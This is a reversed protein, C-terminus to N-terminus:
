FWVETQAGFSIGSTTDTQTVGGANSNVGEENWKAYTAFFRIAPRSFFKSGASFQQAVTFKTLTASDSGAAEPTVKDYGLEFATSSHGGWQVVPRIGASLWKYGTDGARENNEYIAVFQAETASGMKFTGTDIVRFMSGELSTNLNGSNSSNIMGDSGKQIILKNKVGMLDDNMINLTFLNGGNGEETAALDDGSTTGNSVVGINAGVEMSMGEALAIKSLRIDYNNGAQNYDGATASTGESTGSRLWAVSLKGVGVDINRIGAGPGKPDWYFFDNIHVNQRDIFEKGAWVTAGPLAEIVDTGSVNFRRIVIRDSSSGGGAASIAEWDTSQDSQYIVETKVQFKAGTADDKYVDKFLRVAAYTDCENGLRYKSPAGAAKYCVQDGGDASAGIGSRMYLKFKSGDDAFAAVSTTATAAALALTMLSHTLGSAKKNRTM